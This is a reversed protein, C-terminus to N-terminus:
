ENPQNTFFSPDDYQAIVEKFYTERENVFPNLFTKLINLNGRCLENNGLNLSFGRFRWHDNVALHGFEDTYKEYEMLGNLQFGDSNFVGVQIAGGVSAIQSDNIIRRLVHFPTAPKPDTEWLRLAERQADGDGIVILEGAQKQLEKKTFEIGDPGYLDFGFEYLRFMSTVPCLGGFLVKSLGGAQHIQVLGSSIQKYISFAIESLNDMTTDSYQPVAQLNSLVEETSDALISGNMYSGTFCMGFNTQYLIKPAEDAPPADFIRVNIKFVKPSDDTIVNRFVGTLRSDSIFYAETQTKWSLCLTMVM